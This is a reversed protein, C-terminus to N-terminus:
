RSIDEGVAAIEKAVLSDLIKALADKARDSKHCTAEDVLAVIGGRAFGRVLIEAREAIHRQQKQLVGAARAGIPVPGKSNKKVGRGAPFHAM